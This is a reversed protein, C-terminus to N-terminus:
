VESMIRDRVKKPLKDWQEQTLKLADEPKIDEYSIVRGGKGGSLSASTKQKEANKVMRNVTEQNGNGKDTKGWKSNLKAIDLILDVTDAESISDDLFANNIMELYRPKAKAVEQALGVVDDIVNYIGGTLDKINNKAYAEVDIIKRQFNKEKERQKSLENNKSKEIEELDKKTIPKDSSDDEKDIKILDRLEEVTLNEPNELRKQLLEIKTKYGYDQLKKYQSDSELEKRKEEEEKLKKYLGKSNHYFNKIHKPLKYFDNPNNNYLEHVKEFNDFDEEKLVVEEKQEKSEEEHQQQEDVEDKKISDDNIIGFDKAQKIEEESLDSVDIKEKVVEEPIEVSNEEKIEEPM